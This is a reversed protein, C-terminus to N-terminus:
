NKILNSSVDLGVGLIVGEEDHDGEIGIPGFGILIVLSTLGTSSCGRTIISRASLSNLSSNPKVAGPNVVGPTLFKAGLAM